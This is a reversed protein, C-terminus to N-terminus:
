KGAIAAKYPFAKGKADKYLEFKGAMSSERWPIAV